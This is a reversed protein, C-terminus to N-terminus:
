VSCDHLCKRDCAFRQPNLHTRVRVWEQHLRVQQHDWHRRQVSDQLDTHIWPSGDARRRPRGLLWSHNLNVNILIGWEHHFRFFIFLIAFFSYHDSPPTNVTLLCASRRCLPLRGAAGLCVHGSQVTVDAPWGDPLHQTILCHFLQMIAAEHGPERQLSWPQLHWRSPQAHLQYFRCFFPGKEHQNVSGLGGATERLLWNMKGNKASETLHLAWFWFFFFDM